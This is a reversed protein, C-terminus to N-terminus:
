YYLVYSVGPGLFPLIESGYFDRQTNGLVIGREWPSIVVIRVDMIIMKQSKKVTKGGIHSDRFM